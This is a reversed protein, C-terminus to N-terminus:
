AEADEVLFNGPGAKRELRAVAGPAKDGGRRVLCPKGDKGFVIGDPKAEIGQFLHRSEEWRKNPRFGFRSAFDIAGEVVARAVGPDCDEFEVPDNFINPKVKERYEEDDVNPMVASDKLGLCFVDVYYGGVVLKGSPNRRALLVHALGRDAWGRSVVCEVIPLDAAQHLARRPNHEAEAARRRAQAERLEKERKKKKLAARQAAKTDKGM